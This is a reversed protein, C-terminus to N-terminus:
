TCRRVFRHSAADASASGAMGRLTWTPVDISSCLETACL